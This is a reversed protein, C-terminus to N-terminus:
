WDAIINEFKTFIHKKREEGKLRYSGRAGGV